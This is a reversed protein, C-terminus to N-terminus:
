LITKLEPVKYEFHELDVVFLEKDNCPNYMIAKKRTKLVIRNIKKDLLRQLMRKLIKNKLNNIENQKIFDFLSDLNKLIDPNNRWSQTNAESLLYYDSLFFDVEINHKM